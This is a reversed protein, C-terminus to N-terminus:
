TVGVPHPSPPIAAAVLARELERVISEPLVHEIEDADRDVHSPAIEAYKILYMEWLRHNRLVRQAEIRGAGTLKFRRGASRALLGARRAKLILRLLAVRTWSREALLEDISVSCAEGRHEEFEALARLLHQYVTRRRLAVQRILGAVVGRHPAFLMSFLFLIGTCIVIIAGAPLRGALASLTAGLWGSAAGFV